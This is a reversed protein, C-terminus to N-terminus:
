PPFNIKLLARPSTNTAVIGVFSYKLAGSIPSRSLAGSINLTIASSRQAIYSLASSGTTNAFRSTDSASTGLESIRFRNSAHLRPYPPYSLTGWTAMGGASASLFICAKGARLLM